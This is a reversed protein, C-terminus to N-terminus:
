MYHSSNFTIGTGVILGELHRFGIDNETVLRLLVMNQQFTYQTVGESDVYPTEQSIDISWENTEGILVDNFDALYIESENTGVGLDAPINTTKKFPVGKLFGNQMEPYQNKGSANKLDALFRATRPSLMWGPMIMNSNAEELGLLLAGLYEDINTAILEGSFAIVRGADLATKRMGTPADGTLSEGRIFARDQTQATANIMDQLVLQETRYGSQNLLKKTMPVLSIQEKAQLKLDGFKSESVEGREMEGKYASTAGGTQRPMTINGNPLPISRAGLERVVTRPTLLEIVEDAWNEPVLSGGSDSATTIAMAVDNDGIESTAFKVADDVNGKGAAVSMALRTFKAGPYNKLEQKVHIAPSGGLGNATVPTATQAVLSQSREQRGLQAALESHETELKAFEALDEATLKGESEEKAALSQIAVLKENMAAKIQPINM